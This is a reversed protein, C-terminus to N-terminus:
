VNRMPVVESESVSAKDCCVYVTESTVRKSAEVEALSFYLLLNPQRKEGEEIRKVEPLLALSKAIQDLSVSFEKEFSVRETQKARRLDIPSPWPEHDM